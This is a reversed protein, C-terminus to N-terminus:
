SIITRILRKVGIWSLTLAIAFGLLLLFPSTGFYRDLYAGGFGFAAAPIAIIYGLNWALRLASWLTEQKYQRQETRANM